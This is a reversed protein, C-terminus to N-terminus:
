VGFRAACATIFCLTISDYKVSILHFIKHRIMRSRRQRHKQPSFRAWRLMVNQGTFHFVSAPATWRAAGVETKDRNIDQAM